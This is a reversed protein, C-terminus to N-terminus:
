SNKVLPVVLRRDRGKVTVAALIFGVALGVALFGVVALFVFRFTLRTAAAATRRGAM